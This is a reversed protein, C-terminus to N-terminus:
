WHAVSSRLPWSSSTGQDACVKQLKEEYEQNAAKADEFDAKL